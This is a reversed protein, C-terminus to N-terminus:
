ETLADRISATKPKQRIRTFRVYGTGLEKILALGAGNSLATNGFLSKVFAQCSIFSQGVLKSTAPNLDAMKMTDARSARDFATCLLMQAVLEGCAGQQLPVITLENIERLINCVNPWNITLNATNAQESHRLLACAVLSLVPETLTQTTIESRGRKIRKIFRLHNHVQREMFPTTRPDSSRFELVVRQALFGLIQAHVSAHQLLTAGLVERKVKYIQDDNTVHM